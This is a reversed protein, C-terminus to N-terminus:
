SAAREAKDTLQNMHKEVIVDGHDTALTTILNLLVAVAIWAADGRRVIDALDDTRARARGNSTM